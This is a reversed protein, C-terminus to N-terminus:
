RNSYGQEKQKELLSKLEKVIEPYKTYLNTTEREDKEMDYLQGDPDEPKGTKMSWGGSGKGDIFKWKGKRIAFMGDISHHIISERVPQDNGMLVPQLNFSDPGAGAPLKQHTIGAFTAM